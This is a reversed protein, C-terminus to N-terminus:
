LFSSLLFIGISLSLVIFEIFIYDLSYSSLVMLEISNSVSPCIYPVIFVGLGDYFLDIFIFFDVV